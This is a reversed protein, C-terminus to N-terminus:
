ANSMDLLMRSKNDDVDMMHRVSPPSLAMDTPLQPDRGYLLFFPSEGTSPQVISRYAFLLYTLRVDWDKGGAKVTKSLMDLLTRNFREVLGDSQPHYATTNVKKIGMVKCIKAILKSLFSAGRDSLLEKPVGHRSIVKEVLLKAITPASQDATAFVEPWKTLYDIFVVAYHNRRSSKPLQLVDVGVRDFPGGVPIPTLTPKIAQGVNRTACVLCAKCWYSVDSRIGPWWYHKSLQSYIKAERLHGGFVGKHAEKFLEERDCEPVFIRLSNDKELKYLVGDLLAYQSRSLILERAKKDDDPLVEDELYRIICSLTLDARQQESLTGASDEISQVAETSCTYITAVVAPTSEESNGSELLSM